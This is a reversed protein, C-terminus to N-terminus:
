RQRISDVAKPNIDEAIVRGAPGVRRAARVSFWGGGAGIDGVTSGSHLRLTDMVRDVQLLKDRNPEEFVSLDGTYPQSTPHEPAPVPTQAPLCFSCVLVFPVVLRVSRM